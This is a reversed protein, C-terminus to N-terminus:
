IRQQYIMEEEKNFLIGYDLIEKSYMNKSMNRKKNSTGHRYLVEFRWSLCYKSDPFITEILLITIGIATKNDNFRGRKIPITPIQQLNLILCILIWVEGSVEWEGESM